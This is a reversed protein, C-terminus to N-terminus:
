WPEFGAAREDAELQKFSAEALTTMMAGLDGWEDRDFEGEQPMRTYADVIERDIEAQKDKALYAEIAKRILESRSIGARSASADLQKVLEVSLQVMTQTRTSM